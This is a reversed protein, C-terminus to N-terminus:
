PLSSQLAAYGDLETLHVAANNFTAACVALHVTLSLLTTSAGHRDSSHCFHPATIEHQRPCCLSREDVPAPASLTWTTPRSGTQIICLTVSVSRLFMIEPWRRYLQLVDVSMETLAIFVLVTSITGLQVLWSRVSSPKLVDCSMM